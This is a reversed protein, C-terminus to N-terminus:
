KRFIMNFHFIKRSGLNKRYSCPTKSAWCMKGDRPSYIIFDENKHIIKSEVKDIFFLPSNLIPYKYFNIEKVLRNVNRLNYFTFILIIFIFVINKLTNLKIKIKSFYNSFFIFIPLSILVYGGYRMSPHKLFWLSIFILLLYYVKYLYKNNSNYFRFNNKSKFYFLLYFILVICFIGFLTDTIKPHFHRKLWNEVWNFKKVYEEKKMKSKYSPGGGAKAWWEYHIKLEKVEQKPISWEFKEICTREEPYLLCGTNLFNILFNMLFAFCIISIFKLNTSKILEFFCKKEYILFIILILYIAYISKLSASYIVILLLFEYSFIKNKKDLLIEILLIFILFLLIQASRDTGHEGIRYFVVDVFALCFLALYFVLNIKKEKLNEFVKNLLIFNFFLLILFQGLNFLYFNIGPLYFTSNLYFISSYTRFGHSFAGQGISISNQSLNLSYTLHYYPFDDHTKYIYIGILLILVLILIKKLENYNIKKKFLMYTFFTVNVSHLIINHAYGHKIFFSSLVSIFTIFFIGLIGQYGLNYNKFRPNIINSFLLGSGITSIILFLIYFLFIFHFEM